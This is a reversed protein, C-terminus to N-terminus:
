RSTETSEPRLQSQSLDARAKKSNNTDELIIRNGIHNRGVSRPEWSFEKAEEIQRLEGALRLKVERMKPKM